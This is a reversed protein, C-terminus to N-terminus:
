GHSECVQGAPRDGERLPRRPPRPSRRADRPARQDASAQEEQRRGDAAAAIAPLTMCRFRVASRATPPRGTPERDTHLPDAYRSRPWHRYGGWPRITM